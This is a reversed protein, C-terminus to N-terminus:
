RLRQPVKHDIMWDSIKQTHGQMGLPAFRDGPRRSRLIVAAGAPIVLRAQLDDAQARPSGAAVQTAHLQWRSDIQTVGPVHLAIIRGPELLPRDAEDNPADAAEIVVADYDVRLRLGGALEAIGGVRDSLAVEVATVVQRYSIADAAGRVQVAAWLVWRRQLAPHLERFIRSPLWVRGDERLVHPTITTLLAQDLYDRETQAVEAMQTLARDVQPNIARLQPLVTLRLHNRLYTPDNNTADQRPQLGQARCYAEIQARTVGLLPRILRLHPYGPLPADYAMGAIGNLGAGRLLHMLVTEAQDDAHHAVAVRDAGVAAAVEAFFAYRAARATAEIGREGNTRLRVGKVTCPLGWAAAVAAVFRADAAGAAHRLGHDLTAVHLECEFQDRLQALVHLLALSDAGGSVGVVVRSGAPILNRHRVTAQFTKVM